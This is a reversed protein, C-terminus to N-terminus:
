EDLLSRFVDEAPMVRGARMDALGRQIGVRIMEENDEEFKELFNRERATQEVLNKIYSQMDLAADDAQTEILSTTESSLDIEIRM